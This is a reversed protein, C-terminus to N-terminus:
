KNLFSLILFGQKIVPKEPGEFEIKFLSYIPHTNPDFMKQFIFEHTKLQILKVAFNPDYLEDIKSDTAILKSFLKKYDPDIPYNFTKFISSLEQFYLEMQGIVANM